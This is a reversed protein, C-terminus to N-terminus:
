SLLDFDKSATTLSKQDPQSQTTPTMAGYDQRLAPLKTKVAQCRYAARQNTMDNTFTSRFADVSSRLQPKKRPKVSNRSCNEKWFM